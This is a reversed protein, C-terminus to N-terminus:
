VSFECDLILWRLRNIDFHFLGDVKQRPLQRLVTHLFLGCGLAM